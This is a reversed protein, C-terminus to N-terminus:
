MWTVAFTIIAGATWYVVHQVDGKIAYVIAAGVSLVIMITPFTKEM